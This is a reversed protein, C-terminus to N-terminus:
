WRAKELWWWGRGTIFDWERTRTREMRQQKPQNAERERDSNWSPQTGTETYIKPTETQTHTYTHRHTQLHQSFHSKFWVRLWEHGRERERERKESFLENLSTCENRTGTRCRNKLRNELTRSTLNWQGSLHCIFSVLIAILGITTLTEWLENPIWWGFFKQASSSATPTLLVQKLNNKVKVVLEDIININNFRGIRYIYKHTPECGFNGFNQALSVNAHGCVLFISHAMKINTRWEREREREKVTRGLDNKDAWSQCTM